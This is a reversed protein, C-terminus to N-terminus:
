EYPNVDAFVTVDRRPAEKLLRSLLSRVARSNECSLSLRYRYRNNIKTVSAPAPGLVLMKVGRWDPASLARLLRDRFETAAEIVQREPYGTFGIQILDFFPPCSRAQRLAIEQEYFADYDQRSALQLM